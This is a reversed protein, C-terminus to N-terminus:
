LFVEVLLFFMVQILLLHLAFKNHRGFPLLQFITLLFASVVFWSSYNFLPVEGSGLWRWYGLRIAAPELFLDVVVALLAGDLVVSLWRMWKSQRIAQDKTAAALRTFLMQISCGCCYMIIFWNIGILLPVKKYSYGLATGYEYSGFLIGTSTGLWEVLFGTVFCVIFFLLFAWNIKRQTYFLLGAMLLLHFPTAKVFLERSIFAMGVLGIIHFIIAILTATQNRTM